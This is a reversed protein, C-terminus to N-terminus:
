MICTPWKMSPDGLPLGSVVRFHEMIHGYEHGTVKYNLLDNTPTSCSIKSGVECTHLLLGYTFDWLRVISDGSGSVLVGTSIGSQLCLRPLLCSLIKMPTFNSEWLHSMVAGKLTARFKTLWDSKHDVESTFGAPGELVLHQVHEPHKFAYKSVVYGGFSHGLLIFKDLYKAKRWEEHSDIFRDGTEKSSSKSPLTSKKSSTPRKKGKSSQEKELLLESNTVHPKLMFDILKIVVDEKCFDKLKQKEDSEQWVFGSFQLINMKVQITKGRRGFLITHLVKLTDDGAIVGLQDMAIVRFHKTLPDFNRFFFGKAAAYGHVMVLTPSDEKSDFTFTNIFRPENSSSRFWRIKSGPPGTGYQCKRPHISDSICLSYFHPDHFSSSIAIEEM